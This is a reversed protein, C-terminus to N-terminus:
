RSADCLIPNINISHYLYTKFRISSNGSVCSAFPNNKEAKKNASVASSNTFTRQLGDDLIM